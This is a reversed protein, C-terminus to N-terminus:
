TSSSCIVGTSLKSPSMKTMVKPDSRKSLSPKAPSMKEAIKRDSGKSLSQKATTGLPVIM